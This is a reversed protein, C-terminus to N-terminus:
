AFYGNDGGEVVGGKPKWYELLGRVGDAAAKGADRYAACTMIVAFFLFFLGYFLISTWKSLYSTTLTLVSQLSFLAMFFATTFVISSLVTSSPLGAVAAAINAVGEVKAQPKHPSTM